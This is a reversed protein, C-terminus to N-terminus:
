EVAVNVKGVERMRKLSQSSVPAALTDTGNARLRKLLALGEKLWMM